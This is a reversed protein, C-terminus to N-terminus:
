CLWRLRPPPARLLGQIPGTLSSPVPRAAKPAFPYAGMAHLIFHTMGEIANTQGDNLNIAAVLLTALMMLTQVPTMALDIRQGSFLAMAEM